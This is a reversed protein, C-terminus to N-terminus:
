SGAGGLRSPWGGWRHRDRSSKTQTELQGTCLCCRHTYSSAGTFEDGIVAIRVAPSSSIPKSVTDAKSLHGDNGASVWDTSTLSSSSSSSLPLIKGENRLLITGAVALDAALKRHADSRADRGMNGEGGPESAREFLGAAFMSRLVRHVMGNITSETVNADRFKEETFYTASSMEM